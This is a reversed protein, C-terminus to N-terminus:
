ETSASALHTALFREMAQFTRTRHEQNSLYHDGNEFVIYEYPRGAAKLREVLRESHEIRVARDDTGHMILLPVGMKDVNLVPSTEKLRARDGWDDGLMEEVLHRSTYRFASSRLYLLDTVGAFSVACQYLDPNRVIGMLAAYGGFSGGVICIRGPDAVGEAILWYTADTVDDQMKLGWNEIAAQRFQIGYGSSGRFNVQLVAYGRSALFEAWYDFSIDDRSMPGGHPLIVSPLPGSSRGPPLSLFAELVLGDRAGIEVRRRESLEIGDLEPYTSAIPTLERTQRNGYYYVGPRNQRYSLVVYRTEDDSLAIIRNMADPLAKDIGRQLALLEEDWMTYRGSSGEYYIGVVDHRRPSYILEGGIDYKPDSAVLSLPLAADRLDARFVAFRGEHPASVYLVDTDAGFGLPRPGSDGLIEFEWLQRFTSEGSAKGLVFLKTKRLGVGIRVNGAADALWEDVDKRPREVQQARQTRLNVKYVAVENPKELDAALLIQEPDDKLTSIVQDTFQPIWRVRRLDIVSHVEGSNTNAVLMRTEMTPTGYRMEPYRVSALIDENNAWAIWNFNMEKNGSSLIVKRENPGIRHSVLYTTGAQNQLFAVTQGDPSLAVDDLFPLRAFSELPVLAGPGEGARATLAAGCLVVCLAMLRIFNM